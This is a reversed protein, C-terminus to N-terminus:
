VVVDSMMMLKVVRLMESGGAGVDIMSVEDGSMVVLEVPDVERPSNAGAV